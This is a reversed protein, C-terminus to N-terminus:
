LWNVLACLQYQPYSSWVGEESCTKCYKQVGFEYVALVRGPAMLQWRDEENLRAGDSAYVFYNVGRLRSPDCKRMAFEVPCAVLGLAWAGNVCRRCYKMKLKSLDAYTQDTKYVAMSGDEAFQEGEVIYSTAYANQVNERIYKSGLTYM